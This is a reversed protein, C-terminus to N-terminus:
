TEEEAPAVKAPTRAREARKKEIAMQNAEFATTRQNLVKKLQENRIVKQGDRNAPVADLAKKPDVPAPADDEIYHDEAERKKAEAAYPGERKGPFDVGAWPGVVVAQIDAKGTLQLM